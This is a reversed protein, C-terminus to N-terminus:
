LSCFFIVLLFVVDIGEQLLVFPAPLVPPDGHRVPVLHPLEQVPPAGALPIVGAVVQVPVPCNGALAEVAPRDEERCVLVVEGVWPCEGLVQLSWALVPKGGLSELVKSKEGGMRTSNGAGLLVAGFCPRKEGDM